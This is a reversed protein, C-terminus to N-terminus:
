GSSKETACVNRQEIARNYFVSAFVTTWQVGAPDVHGAIIGAGSDVLLTANFGFEAISAAIQAV